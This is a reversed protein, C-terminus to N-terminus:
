EHLVHHDIEVVERAALYERHTKRVKGQLRDKIVLAYALPFLVLFTATSIIGAKWARLAENINIEGHICYRTYTIMRWLKDKVNLKGKNYDKTISMAYAKGRNYEMLGSLSLCHDEGYNVRKLVVPIFRTKKVGIINWVSSESILFDVEMFPTSKVLSSRTFIVLDSRMKEFLQNFELDTYESTPYSDGLIGDKTDCLATVGAFEKRQSEPISDWSALLKDVANPLLVDDSDCWLIFEGRACRVAENDMRSKGIRTSANILTVPFDSKQALTRVTEVTDDDSGDNAVIWEFSKNTQKDLGDWVSSLYKERNWTPTLISVLPSSQNHMSEIQKFTQKITGHNEHM